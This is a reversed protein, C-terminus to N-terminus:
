SMATVPLVCLVLVYLVAVGYTCYFQAAVYCVAPLNEHYKITLYITLTLECDIIAGSPLVQMAIHPATFVEVTYPSPASRLKCAHTYDRFEYSM